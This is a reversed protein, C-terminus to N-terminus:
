KRKNSLFSPIEISSTFSKKTEKDWQSITKSLEDPDYNYSRDARVTTKSKQAPQESQAKEKKAEPHMVMEQQENSFGTAIVTVKIEDGASEDNFAGFMVEADGDDGCAADYIFDAAAQAEMITLNAGSINVLIGTAGEISLELLPSSIAAKAAVIARNEGKATGVGMLATGTDAMITRVDAFDLNLIGAKAITDSIGQVGQRLIDDAFSFAQELTTESSAIQLLRDNPITVISDVKEKLDEVGKMAGNSRKRGEFAFPKTVIGITLAGQSKAIEAVIPAAGTGTGGGMGATVFVLDAGELAKAIEETSEEAAKRGVEPRGGAGLGKTLKPGLQIKTAAKSAELAQADTNAVIFEVCEVGSEIMRNVANSGGGGVGIVKINALNNNNEEMEFELM